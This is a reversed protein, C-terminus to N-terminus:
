KVITTIAIVIVITNSIVIITLVITIISVSIPTCKIEQRYRFRCCNHLGQLGFKIEMLIPVRDFTMTMMMRIMMITITIKSKSNQDIQIQPNHKLSPRLTFAEPYTTGMKQVVFVKYGTM